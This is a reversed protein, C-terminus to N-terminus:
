GGSAAAAARAKVFIHRVTAVHLPQAFRIEVFGQDFAVIQGQIPGLGDIRLTAPVGTKVQYGADLRCGTNWLEDLVVPLPCVGHERLMVPLGIPWRLPEWGDREVHRLRDRTM